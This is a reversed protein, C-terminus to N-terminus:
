RRHNASLCGPSIHRLHLSLLPLYVPTKLYMSQPRCVPYVPPFLLIAYIYSTVAIRSHSSFSENCPRIKKQSRLQPQFRSDSLDSNKQSMVMSKREIAVRKRSMFFRWRRHLSSKHEPIKNDSLGATIRAATLFINSM